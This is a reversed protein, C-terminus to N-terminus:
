PVPFCVPANIFSAARVTSQQRESLVFVCPLERVSYYIVLHFFVGTPRALSPQRDSGAFRLFASDM